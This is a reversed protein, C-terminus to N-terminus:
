DKPADLLVSGEEPYKEFYAYLGPGSHADPGWRDVNVIVEEDGGFFEVLAEAQDMDMVSVDCGQVTVGLNPLVRQRRNEEAAGPTDRPGLMAVMEQAQKLTFEMM